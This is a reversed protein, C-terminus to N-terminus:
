AAELREEPIRELAKRIGIAEQDLETLLLETIQM